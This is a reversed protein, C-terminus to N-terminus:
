CRLHDPQWDKIKKKIESRDAIGKELVERVLGPMEADSAFRLAVLQGTALDSIRGRLDEPLVEALRLRMELRILRDQVALPFARLYWFLLILAVAVLVAFVADVSVGRFLGWVSWGLNAVLILSTVYHYLPVFRAHNAYNQPTSEAM